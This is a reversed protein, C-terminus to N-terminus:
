NWGNVLILAIIQPIEVAVVSNEAFIFRRDAYLNSESCYCLVEALKRSSV